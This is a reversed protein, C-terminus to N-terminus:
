SWSPRECPRKGINPMWAESHAEPPRQVARFAVHVAMHIFMSMKRYCPGMASNLTEYNYNELNRGDKPTHRDKRTEKGM